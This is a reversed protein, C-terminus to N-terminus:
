VVCERNPKKLFEPDYELEKGIIMELLVHRTLKGLVNWGTGDNGDGLFMDECQYTFLSDTVIGKYIALERMLIETSFKARLAVLLAAFKLDDNGKTVPTMKWKFDTDGTKVFKDPAGMELLTKKKKENIVLEGKIYLRSELPTLYQLVFLKDYPNCCLSACYFNEVSCTTDSDVCEICGINLIEFMDDDIKLGSPFLSSLVRTDIKENTDLLKKIRNSEKKDVLAHSGFNIAQLYCVKLEGQFISTSPSGM